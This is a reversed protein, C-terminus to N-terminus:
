PGLGDEEVNSITSFILRFLADNSSYYGGRVIGDMIGVVIITARQYNIPVKVAIPSRKTTTAALLFSQVSPYRITM